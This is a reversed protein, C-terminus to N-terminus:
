AFLEATHAQMQLKAIRDLGALGALPAAVTTEKEPGDTLHLNEVAIGRRIIPVLTASEVFAYRGLDIRGPRRQFPLGVIHVNIQLHVALSHYRYLQVAPNEMVLHLHGASGFLEGDTQLIM